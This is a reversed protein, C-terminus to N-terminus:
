TGGHSTEKEATIPEASGAAVLADATKKPVNVTQGARFAQIVAPKLRHDHSRLIRIKM